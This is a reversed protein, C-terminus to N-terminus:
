YIYKKELYGKRRFDPINERSAKISAASMQM